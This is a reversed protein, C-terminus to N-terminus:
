KATWDQVTLGPVREFERVNGTAIASGRRRAQAAILIDYPGIPKGSRELFGRIDAAEAADALDFDPKDLPGALFADLARENASRRASKAIGVRLEFVVIAPVLIPTGQAMERQLRGAASASRGTMIAIVVNTDLCFM